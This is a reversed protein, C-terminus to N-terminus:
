RRLAVPGMGAAGAGGLARAGGKAVGRAIANWDEFPPNPCWVRVQIGLTRLRHSLRAAADEGVMGRDAAVLVRRVDPPPTWAALNNASMLAWGPLRFRDIASLTTVVGEGVLMEEAAPSLRVAASPPVVGVTKRPVALGVVGLGNPELYTVEVATLGGDAAVIRAVLAPRTRGGPRYISVPVAPHFRLDLAGDGGHVARRRLYLSAPDSPSLPRADHWLRSATEIRRRRDPAPASVPARGAGTLRGTDDIFGSSRLHDRIARWDAAGFGHIIVRGQSLLLSVSRDAQSHGPAPVNARLGSQYLDGGLAAVIPHLTM